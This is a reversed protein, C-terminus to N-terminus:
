TEIISESMKKSDKKSKKIQNFEKNLEGLRKWLVKEKVKSEEQKRKKLQKNKEAVELRKQKRKEVRENVEKEEVENFDGVNIRKQEYTCTENRM